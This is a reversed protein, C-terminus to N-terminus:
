NQAWGILSPTVKYRRRENAPRLGLILGVDRCYWLSYGSFDLVPCYGMEDNTLIRNDLLPNAMNHGHDCNSLVNNIFKDSTWVFYAATSQWINTEWTAKLNAINAPKFMSSTYRPKRRM